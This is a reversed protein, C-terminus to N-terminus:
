KNEWNIKKAEQWLYELNYFARAHKQFIHTVVDGLDYIVWDSKKLGQKVYARMGLHELGEDLSDAIARVQRDTNGSCIVFYDCFNVVRRMDLVVIDEAKKQSAVEAIYKAIKKSTLSDKNIVLFGKV